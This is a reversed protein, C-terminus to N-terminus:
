SRSNTSNLISRMSHFHIINPSRIIFTLWIFISRKMKYIRRSLRFISSTNRSPWPLTSPLINLKSRHINPFIPSKKMISSPNNRITPPILSYICRLNCISSRDKTCLPLTSSCLLYRTLCYRIILKILHNRYSRWYYISFYIRSIMINTHQLFLQIRSTHSIM